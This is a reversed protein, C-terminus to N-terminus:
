RRRNKHNECVRVVYSPQRGKKEKPSNRREHKPRRRWREDNDRGRTHKAQLRCRKRKPKLRVWRPRCPGRLLGAAAVVTAWGVGKELLEMCPILETSVVPDVTDAGIEGAEGAGGVAFGDESRTEM